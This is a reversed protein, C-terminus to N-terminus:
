GSRLIAWWGTTSGNRPPPTTTDKAMIPRAAIDFRCCPKPSALFRSLSDIPRGGFPSSSPPLPWTTSSSPMPGRAPGPLLAVAACHEAPWTGRGAESPEVGAASPKASALSTDPEAGSPGVGASIPEGAPRLTDPEAESPGVELCVPEAMQDEQEWPTQTAM